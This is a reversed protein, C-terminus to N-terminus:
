LGVLYTGNAIFKTRKACRNTGSVRSINTFNNINLRMQIKILIIKAYIRTFSFIMSSNLRRMILAFCKDEFSYM